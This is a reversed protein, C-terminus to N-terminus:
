EDDEICCEDVGDDVWFFGFVLVVILLM